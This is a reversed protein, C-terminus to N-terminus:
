VWTSSRAAAVRTSQGAARGFTFVVAPQWGAVLPAVADSLEDVLRARVAPPLTAVWPAVHATGFRYGVVTGPDRLGVDVARVTAEVDVLGAREAAAALRPADGSTPLIDAKMTLYWDPPVWGLSRLRDDIVRKVPDAPGAAWTTAGAVGGPRLIRALERLAPEPALHNLLFGALAADFSGTRFPLAVVDGVAVPWRGSQHAAMGPSRDIAVPRAGAASLAAAVAGTGSGVDLVRLGDLPLPCSGVLAVALPGYVRTADADWSAATDDYASVPAAAPPIGRAGTGAM